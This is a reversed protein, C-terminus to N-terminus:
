ARCMEGMSRLGPRQRQERRCNTQGSPGAPPHWSRYPILKARTNSVKVPAQTRTANRALLLAAAM